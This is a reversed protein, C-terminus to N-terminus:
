LIETKANNYSTKSTGHDATDHASLGAISLLFYLRRGGRMSGEASGLLIRYEGLLCCSLDRLLIICFVILAVINFMRVSLGIWEFV